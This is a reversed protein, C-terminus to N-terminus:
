IKRQDLYKTKMAAIWRRWVSCLRTFWYSIEGKADQKWTQWVSFKSHKKTLFTIHNKRSPQEAPCNIINELIKSDYELNPNWVSLAFELHARVFTTYIIRSIEDSWSSFTIKMLGLVRNAKSVASNFQEYWTGDSSALVDLDKWM